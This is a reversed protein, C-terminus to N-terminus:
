SNLWEEYDDANLKGNIVLRLKALAAQNWKDFEEVTMTGSRIRAKRTKYKKRYPGYSPSQSLPIRASRSAAKADPSATRKNGENGPCADCFNQGAKAPVFYKHCKKCRRIHTEETIMRYVELDLLNSFSIVDYTIVTPDIVDTTALVAERLAPSLSGDPNWYLEDLSRTLKDYTMEGSKPKKGDESEDPDAFDMKVIEKTMKDSPRIGFDARIFALSDASYALSYLAVRRATSLGSLAESTDDLTIFVLRRIRDQLGFLYTLIRRTSDPEDARIEINYEPFLIDPDTDVSFRKLAVRSFMERKAAASEKPFWHRIYDAFTTNLFSQVNEPSLMFFPHMERLDRIVSRLLQKRTDSGDHLCSLYEKLPEELRFLDYDMFRFLHEHTDPILSEMHFVLPFMDGEFTTEDIGIQLYCEAM